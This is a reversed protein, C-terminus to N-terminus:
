ALVHTIVLDLRAAKGPSPWIQEAPFPVSASLFNCKEGYLDDLRRGAFDGHFSWPWGASSNLPFNNMLPFHSKLNAQPEQGAMWARCCSPSLLHLLDQAGSGSGHFVMWPQMKWPIAASNGGSPSAPHLVSLLTDGVFVRSPELM